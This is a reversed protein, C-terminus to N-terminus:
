RSGPRTPTAASRTASWSSTTARPPSPATPRTRSGSRICTADATWGCRNPCISTSRRSVASRGPPSTQSLAMPALTAWTAGPTIDAIGIPIILLCLPCRLMVVVSLLGASFPTLTWASSSARSTSLPAGSAACNVQRAVEVQFFPTALVVVTWFKKPRPAPASCLVSDINSASWGSTKAASSLPMVGISYRSTPRAPQRVAPTADTACFRPMWSRETSAVTSPSWSM